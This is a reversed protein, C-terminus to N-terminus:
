PRILGDLILRFGERRHFDPRPGPHFLAWHSTKGQVTKVVACAAAEVPNAAPVIKGIDLDLSLLLIGPETRVDFPLTSYAPEERMGERCSEFRYVNWDGSPSLNFEWYRGSDPVGLFLELCTGEWLRDKRAPSAEPAPLDLESLDAHLSLRLFLLDSRRGIGGTIEM